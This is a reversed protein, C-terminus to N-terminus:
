GVATLRETLPAYWCEDFNGMAEAPSDGFSEFDGYTAKWQEITQADEGEGFVKTVKTLTPHMLVSPREAAPKTTDNEM